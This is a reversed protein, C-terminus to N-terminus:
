NINYINRFISIIYDSGFIGVIYASISLYPGFPIRGRRPIKKLLILIISFIGGIYISLILTSLAGNIGLWTSIMFLYKSDGFGFAEKKIIASITFNLIEFIIFFILSLFLYQYIIGFFNDGYYIKRSIINFLLGSITGFILLDNPIIYNDFDILSVAIIIVTFFTLGFLNVFYNTSLHLISFSNLAFLIATLFEILPYSFSIRSKCFCCKGKLLFWSIIPINFYWHIKNKCSPCFSSPYIISISKPYRFRYVNLFSGFCLGLLFIYIILIM